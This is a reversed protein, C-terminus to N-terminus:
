RGQQSPLFWVHHHHQICSLLLSNAPVFFRAWFTATFFSPFLICLQEGGVLEAILVIARTLTCTQKTRANTDDITPLAFM